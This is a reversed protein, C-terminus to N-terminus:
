ANRMVAGAAQRDSTVVVLPKRAFQGLLWPGYILAMNLLWLLSLGGGLFYGAVAVAVGMSPLLYNPNKAGIAFGWGVLVAFGGTFYGPLVATMGCLYFVPSLLVLGAKPRVTAVLLGIGLASARVALANFGGGAAQPDITIAPGMLVFTGGAARAADLWNPWARLMGLVTPPLVRRGQSLRRSLVSPLFSPAWLLALALLM